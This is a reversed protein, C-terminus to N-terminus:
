QNAGNVVKITNNDIATLNGSSVWAGGAGSFTGRQATGNTAKYLAAGSTTATNRLASTANSGHITGTVIRFVSTDSNNVFVGGGTTAATNGSIEGGEMTFTGRVYVGGGSGSSATNGSIKGGRMTFTGTDNMCVGGGFNNNTNATTNGSIVGGHMTFAGGSVFVGAGFPSTNGSIEGGYLDFTGNAGVFVGGGSNACTNGSIKGGHMTITGGNGVRVGGGSVGSSTNGSIEGSRIVFAGGVFVVVDTNSSNGKLTLDRLIATQSPYIRILFGNGSLTLTRAAGEGRLSVKVGTVSGFTNDISGPVTFNGTVDVAYNKDNGGNRIAEIAANLEDITSVTFIDHITATPGFDAKEDDTM